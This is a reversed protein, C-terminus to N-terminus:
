STITPRHHVPFNVSAAIFCNASAPEHLRAALEADSEPTITIEPNLTAETFHGGNQDTEMTGEARDVYGTVIIKNVACLHLYSLMHCQSLATLLLEEPNYRLPDGRFTPDASGLLPEPKPEIVVEHDRSYDRYSSTGTGTNGTWTTTVRYHHAKGAM